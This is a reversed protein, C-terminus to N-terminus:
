VGRSELRKWPYYNSPFEEHFAVVKDGARWALGAAVMAIGESTNKVIAVEAAECGISRATNRRLKAYTALWQDYHLS